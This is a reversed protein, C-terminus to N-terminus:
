SDDVIVVATVVTDGTGTSLNGCNLQFSECDNKCETIVLYSGGM